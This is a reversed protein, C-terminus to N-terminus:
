NFIAQHVQLLHGRAETLIGHGSPAAKLAFLSFSTELWKLLTLNPFSMLSEVTVDGSYTKAVRVSANVGQGPFLQDVGAEMYPLHVSFLPTLEVKFENSCNTDASNICTSEVTKLALNIEKIKGRLPLLSFYHQTTVIKRGSYDTGPNEAKKGLFVLNMPPLRNILTQLVTQLLRDPAYADPRKITETISLSSTSISVTPAAMLSSYPSISLLLLALTCALIRYM